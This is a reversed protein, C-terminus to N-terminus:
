PMIRRLRDLDLACGLECARRVAQRAQEAHGTNPRDGYCRELLREERELYAYESLEELAEVVACYAAQEQEDM